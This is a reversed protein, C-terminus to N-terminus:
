VPRAEQLRIRSQRAALNGRGMDEALTVRQEAAEEGESEQECTTSASAMLSSRIVPTAVSPATFKRLTHPLGAAGLAPDKVDATKRALALQGRLAIWCSLLQQLRVSGYGSRTLFESVDQLAGMDPLVRRGVLAKVSKSVGSPQAAISYHRFSIRRAAKDYSLLVVRQM